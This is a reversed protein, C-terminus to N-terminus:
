AGHGSGPRMSPRVFGLSVKKPRGERRGWGCQAAWCAASSEGQEAGGSRMWRMGLPRCPAQRGGDPCRRIEAAGGGGGEQDMLPQAGGWAWRCIPAALGRGLGAGARCGVRNPGREPHHPRAPQDARLPERSAHAAGPADIQRAVGRALRPPRAAPRALPLPSWPAHPPRCWVRGGAEGPLTPTAPCHFGRPPRERWGSGGMM